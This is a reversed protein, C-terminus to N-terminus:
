GFVRGVDVAVTVCVGRGEAVIVLVAVMWGMFVLLGVLVCASAVVAVRVGVGVLVCAEVSVEPVVKGFGHPENWIYRGVLEADATCTQGWVLLSFLPLLRIM